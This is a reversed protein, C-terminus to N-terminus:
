RTAVSATTDDPQTLISTSVNVTTFSWSRSIDQGSLTAATIAVKYTTGPRLAKKPLILVGNRLFDDNAPTNIYAPVPKGDATTLVAKAVKIRVAEPSFLFMTIAYGVTGGQAGEHLRLPNPVENGDWSLPINKQGPAPYTVVTETEAAGFLLTAMDGILGAGFGGAGPQLFSARHYPAHFLDAVAGSVGRSGQSISEFCGGAFGFTAVRDGANQGLFDPHGPQQEHEVVRNKSLYVSHGTAAACLRADLRLAPLGVTRRFANVEALAKQQLENPAPLESVANQAITFQWEREVNWSEDLVIECRVRYAGPALPTAPNYIVTQRSVDYAAKVRKQNITLTVETVASDGGPVIKWAVTPRTVRLIGSPAPDFSQYEIANGSSAAAAAFATDDAFANFSPVLFLLGLALAAFFRPLARLTPFATHCFTM